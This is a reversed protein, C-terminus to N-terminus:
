SFGAAAVLYSVRRYQLFRIVSTLISPKPSFFSLLGTSIVVPQNWKRAVGMRAMFWILRWDVKGEWDM